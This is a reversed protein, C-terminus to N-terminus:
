ANKNWFMLQKLMNTGLRNRRKSVMEGAKSFVRECPVSSSPTCPFKMALTYLNPYHLRQTQWYQLPDQSRPTNAESICRQVEVVADTTVNSNARSKRSTWTWCIGCNTMQAPLLHNLHLDLKPM